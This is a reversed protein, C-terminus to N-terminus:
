YSFHIVNWNVIFFYCKFLQSHNLDMYKHGAFLSYPIRPTMLQKSHVTDQKSGVNLQTFLVFIPSPYSWLSSASDRINLSRCRRRKAKAVGTQTPQRGSATTWKWLEVRRRSLTTPQVRISAGARYRCWSQTSLCCIVLFKFYEETQLTASVWCSWWVQFSAGQDRTQKYSTPSASMHQLVEVAGSAPIVPETSRQHNVSEATNVKQLLKCHKCFEWRAVAVVLLSMLMTNRPAMPIRFVMAITVMTM